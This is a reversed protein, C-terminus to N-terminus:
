PPPRSTLVAIVRSPASDGIDVTVDVDATLRGSGHVVAAQAGFVYWRLKLSSLGSALDALLAAVSIKAPMVRVISSHACEPTTSSTAAAHRRARGILTSRKRTLVLSDALRLAGAPGLRSYESAWHTLKRQRVLQWASPSRSLGHQRRASAM